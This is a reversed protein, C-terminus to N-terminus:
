LVRLALVQLSSTGPLALHVPFDLGASASRHVLRARRKASWIGLNVCRLFRVATMTRSRCAVLLLGRPKVATAALAVWNTYQQMGEEKRGYTPALAPPALVVIDFAAVNKEGLVNAQPQPSELRLYKVRDACQNRAALAELQAQLAQIGGTSGLLEEPGLACTTRAGKAACFVGLSEGFLSLVKPPTRPSTTGSVVAAGTGTTRPQPGRPAGGAAAADGKRPGGRGGTPVTDAGGHHPESAATALEAALLKRQAREEFFRSPSLGEALLDVEYTFGEDAPM